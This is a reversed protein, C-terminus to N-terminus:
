YALEAELESIFNDEAVQDVGKQAAGELEIAGKAKAEKELAEQAKKTFEAVGATVSLYEVYTTMVRAWSTQPDKAVVLVKGPFSDFLAQAYEGRNEGLVAFYRAQKGGASLAARTAVEEATDTEGIVMVKAGMARYVRALRAVQSNNVASDLILVDAVEE